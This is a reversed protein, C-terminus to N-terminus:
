KGKEEKKATPMFPNEKELPLLFWSYRNKSRSTPGRSHIPTLNRRVVSFLLNIEAKPLMGLM